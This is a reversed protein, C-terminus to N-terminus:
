KILELKDKKFYLNQSNGIEGYQLVIDYGAINTYSTTPMGWSLRCQKETMGTKIKGNRLDDIITANSKSFENFVDKEVFLEGSYGNTLNVWGEDKPQAYGEINFKCMLGNDFFFVMAYEVISLKAYQIDTVTILDGGKITFQADDVGKMNVESKFPYYQKSIYKNKLNTLFSNIVFENYISGHISVDLLFKNTENNIVFYEKDGEVKYDEITFVKGKIKDEDSYSINKKSEFNLVYDYKTKIITIEQGILGMKKEESISSSFSVEFYTTDYPIPTKKREQKIKTLDTVQGFGILPLCLLILLIKKM